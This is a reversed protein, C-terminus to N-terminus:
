LVKEIMLWIVYSIYSFFDIYGFKKTSKKLKECFSTGSFIRKVVAVDNNANKNIWKKHNNNLTNNNINDNKM